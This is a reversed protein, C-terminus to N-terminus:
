ASLSATQLLLLYQRGAEEKHSDRCKSVKLQSEAAKAGWGTRFPANGDARLGKPIQCCSRLFNHQPAPKQPDVYTELRWGKHSPM